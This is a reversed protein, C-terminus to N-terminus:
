LPVTEENECPVADPEGALFESSIPEQDALLALNPNIQQKFTFYYTIEMRLVVNAAYSNKVVPWDKIAYKLGLLYVGGNGCNIYPQALGASVTNTGSGTYNQLSMLVKPNNLYVSFPKDLRRTVGRRSWIDGVTSVINDDLDKVVKITPITTVSSTDQVNFEPIFKVKIGNVHYRDFLTNLQTWQTSNQAFFTFTGSLWVRNTTGIPVTTASLVTQGNAKPVWTDGSQINTLSTDLSMTKFHHTDAYKNRKGMAKRARKVFRRRKFQKRGGSKLM